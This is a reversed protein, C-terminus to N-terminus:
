YQNEIDLLTDASVELANCLKVVYSATPEIVDNEWMSVTGQTVGVKQALMTQSIKLKNRFYKINRGLEM